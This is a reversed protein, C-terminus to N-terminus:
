RVLSVRRSLAFGLVLAIILLIFQTAGTRPLTDTEIPEVFNQTDTDDVILDINQTDLPDSSPLLNNDETLSTDEVILNNEDILSSSDEVVPSNTTNEQMNDLNMSDNSLTDPANNM